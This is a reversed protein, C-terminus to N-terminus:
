LQFGYISDCKFTTFQTKHVQSPIKTLSTMVKLLITSSDVHLVHLVSYMRPTLTLSNDKLVLLSPENLLMKYLM